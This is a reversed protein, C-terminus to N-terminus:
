IFYAWSNGRVVPRLYHTSGDDLLDPYMAAIALLTGQSHCMCHIVPFSSTNVGELAVEARSDISGFNRAVSEQLALHYSSTLHIGGGLMASCLSPLLAQADVKVGDVGVAAMTAHYSSFFEAIREPPVLGISMLSEAINDTRHKDAYQERVKKSMRFEAGTIRPLTNVSSFHDLFATKTSLDTMLQRGKVGRWYGTLTHWVLFSHIGYKEKVCTILAKLSGQTVEDAGFAAKTGFGELMGDWQKGNKDIIDTQQWGDDLIMFGLSIGRLRFSELGAIVKDSTVDTYFADWTCWGLKDVFDPGPGRPVRPVLSRAFYSSRTLYENLGRVHSKVVAFGASIVEFPNPGVCVLVANEFEDKKNSSIGENQINHGNIQLRGEHGELSFSYAMDMVPLFLVHMGTDLQKGLLFLSEPPLCAGLKHSDLIRPTM